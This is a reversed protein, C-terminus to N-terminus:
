GITDAFAELRTNFGAEGTHEDITLKLFPIRFRQIYREIFETVFSDIGCAFPTIYIMGKIAKNNAFAVASGLNEIGIGWFERDRFPEAHAKKIRYDLSDPTVTKINNDELKKFLKMNLYRDYLMYHHGLVAVLKNGASIHPDTSEQTAKRKLELEQLVKDFVAVVKSFSLGTRKSLVKLSKMTDKIGNNLNLSVELVRVENKLNLATMDPLGCFKPCTFENERLSTYRPVFVYDVKDKLSYVHGHFVKMPLCTDNSCFRVGWDMIEKNTDLSELVECGLERFFNSWILNHEYYFLARPLGITIPRGM